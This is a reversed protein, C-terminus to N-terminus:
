AWSKPKKLIKRREELSFKEISYRLMVRPMQHRYKSLFFRLKNPNIKGAERLMWGTAKHMLDQDDQFIQPAFNYIIQTKSNKIFAL